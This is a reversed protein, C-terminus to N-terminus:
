RGGGRMYQYWKESEDEQGMSPAAMTPKTAGPTGGGGFQQGMMYGGLAGQAAGMMQSNGGSPGKVNSKMGTWPSYRIQEANALMQQKEAEQKQKAQIAGMAAMGAMVVLPIM